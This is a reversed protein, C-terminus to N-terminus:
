VWSVQGFGIGDLNADRCAGVFEPSYYTARVDPSYVVGEGDPWRSRVARAKDMLVIKPLRIGPKTRWERCHPCQVMELKLWEEDMLSRIVPLIYSYGTMRKERGVVNVPVTEVHVGRERICALTRESVFETIGKSVFDCQRTLLRFTPNGIRTGPLLTKRVNEDPTLEKVLCDFDEFSLVHYSVFLDRDMSPPILLGYRALQPHWEDEGCVNCRRFPLQDEREPGSVEGEIGEVAMHSFYFAGNSVGDAM